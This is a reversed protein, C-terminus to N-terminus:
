TFLYDLLQLHQIYIALTSSITTPVISCELVNLSVWYNSLMKHRETNQVECLRWSAGVILLLLKTLWFRKYFPADPTLNHPWKNRKWLCINACTIIVMRMLMDACPRTQRNWHCCLSMAITFLVLSPMSPLIFFSTFHFLKSTVWRKLKAGLVQIRGREEEKEQISIIIGGGFKWQHNKLVFRCKETTTPM